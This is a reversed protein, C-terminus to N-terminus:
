NIRLNFFFAAINKLFGGAQESKQKLQIMKSKFYLLICIGFMKSDPLKNEGIVEM